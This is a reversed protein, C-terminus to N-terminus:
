TDNTTKTTTYTIQQTTNYVSGGPQCGMQLVIIIIIIIIIVVIIVMNEKGCQGLRILHGINVFYPKSKMGNPKAHLYRQLCEDSLHRTRIKVACQSNQM